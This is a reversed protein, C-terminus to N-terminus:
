RLRLPDASWVSRPAPHCTTRGHVSSVLTLIRDGKKLDVPVLQGQQNRAGPAVSVVEGELPKEMASDPSSSEAPQRRTLRSAACSVRDHLPRIHM